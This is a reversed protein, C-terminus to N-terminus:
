TSASPAARDHAHVGQRRRLAPRPGRRARRGDPARAPHARLVGLQLRRADARRREPRRRRAPGLRAAGRAAQEPLRRGPAGADLRVARAPDAGHRAPELHRLQRGVARARQRRARADRRARRPDPRHGVGPHARRQRQQIGAAQRYFYQSSAILAPRSCATACATSAGTSTTSSRRSRACGSSSARSSARGSTTRRHRAARRRAPVAAGRRRLRLHRGARSLSSALADTRGRLEDQTMQALAQYIERYAERSEAPAGPHDSASCRTSHRSAPRPRERRWHPAMAMSCIAWPWSGVAPAHQPPTEPRRARPM